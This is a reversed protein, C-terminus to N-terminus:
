KVYTTKFKKGSSMKKPSFQSVVYFEGMHGSTQMGSMKNNSAQPLGPWNATKVPPMSVKAGKELPKSEGASIKRDSFETHYRNSM